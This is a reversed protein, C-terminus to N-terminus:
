FFESTRYSVLVQQMACPVGYLARHHGLRCLFGFLLPYLYVFPQNVKGDQLFCCLMTFCSYELFFFFFLKLFKSYGIFSIQYASYSLKEM